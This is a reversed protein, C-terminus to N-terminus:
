PISGDVVKVEIDMEELCRKCQTPGLGGAVAYHRICM